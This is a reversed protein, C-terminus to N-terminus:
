VDADILDILIILEPDAAAQRVLFRHINMEKAGAIILVMYVNACVIDFRKQLLCFLRRLGILYFM